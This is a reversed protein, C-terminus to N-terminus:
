SYDQGKWPIVVSAFGQREGKDVGLVEAVQTYAHASMFCKQRTRGM